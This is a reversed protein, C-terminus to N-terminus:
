VKKPFRTKVALCDQTYAKLQLQGQGMGDIGKRSPDDRADPSMGGSNSKGGLGSGSAGGSRGGESSNGSGGRGGDATGTSGDANSGRGTDVSNVLGCKFRHPLKTSFLQNLEFFM